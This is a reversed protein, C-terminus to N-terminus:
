AVSLCCHSSSYDNTLAQDLSELHLLLLLLSYRHMLLALAFCGTMIGFFERWLMSEALYEHFSQVNHSSSYTRVAADSINSERLLSLPTVTEESTYGASFNFALCLLLFHFVQRSGSHLVDSQICIKFSLGSVVDVSSRESRSAKVRLWKSKIFFCGM